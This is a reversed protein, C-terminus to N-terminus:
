WCSSYSAAASLHTRAHLESAQPQSASIVRRLQTASGFLASLGEIYGDAPVAQQRLAMGLHWLVPQVPRLAQAPCAPKGLSGTSCCSHIAERLHSATCKSGAQMHTCPHKHIHTQRM